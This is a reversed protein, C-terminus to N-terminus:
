IYKFYLKKQAESIEPNMIHLPNSEMSGDLALRSDIKPLYAQDVDLFIEIITPGPERLMLAMEEASYSGVPIAEYRIGYAESIKKLNPLGLGTQGDCGVYNGEFYRKQTSRISAYGNNSFIFIKVDLDNIELTGLEQINQAFGGDGEFLWVQGRTSIATGIAGALGIGMSGLGKSSIIIQNKKNEFTQMFSTYTGGSSCSVISLNEDALKSLENIIKFPNNHGDLFTAPEVLPFEDRLDNKYNVWDKRAQAGAQWDFNIAESHFIPVFDLLDAKLTHHNKLKTNQLAIEDIDIQIIRANPAFTSLNFGTQQIGLSCGLVFILDSQQILINAWRQGFMNPRGAYYQNESSFRDAANWSTAVPVGCQNIIDELLVNYIRPFGGGVLILPRRAHALSELFDRSQLSFETTNLRIEERNQKSVGFDIPNVDRGQADLCIEIFVPGKRGLWSEAVNSAFVEVSIPESIQTSKKTISKMLNVGDVEQLGNQRDNTLKLDTSKVQGAILLLERSDMYACAIGTITNTVGPGLTVLALAREKGNIKSQSENFYDCSIVASVEHMVPVMRFRNSFSEILHMINGGSVFFVTTYGQELLTDALLDSYKM